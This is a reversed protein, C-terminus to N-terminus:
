RFQSLFRVDNEVLLRIDDLRWRRMALREVGMGFAFGTWREPDYGVTRFVNPHVMGCGLVEMWGEGGCVSCRPGGVRGHCGPCQLDLEASVETFPFYSPRFRTVVDERYLSQAFTVLCAKLDAFTVDEGVMLGEVQHFAYLHRADVVDPRYVRGPAFVRLPPRRSEMARIQVTSTQSRLLRGGEVQFNDSPSRALHEPPINLADFNHWADEIEPGAIEDFGLRTLIARIEDLVLTVVHLSGEPLRTGPLTPDFTPDAPEAAGAADLEARRAELLAEVESALRNIEAGTAPRADAAVSAIRKLLAKIEGQKGVYRARIRALAVLDGATEIDRRAARTVSRAEELLPSAETMGIEV